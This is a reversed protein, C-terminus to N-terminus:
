ASTEIASYNDFTDFLQDNADDRSWRDSWADYDQLACRALTREAVFSLRWPPPTELRHPPLTPDWQGDNDYRQAVHVM